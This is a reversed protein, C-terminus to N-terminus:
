WSTWCVPSLVNQFNKGDSIFLHSILNYVICFLKTSYCNNSDSTTYIIMLLVVIPLYNKLTWNKKVLTDMHNKWLSAKDLNNRFLEKERTRNSAGGLDLSLCICGVLWAHIRDKHAKRATKCVASHRFSDRALLESGNTCFSRGVLKEKRREDRWCLM